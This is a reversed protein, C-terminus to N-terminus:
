GGTSPDGVWAQDGSRTLKLGFSASIKTLRDLITDAASGTVVGPIGYSNLYVPVIRAVPPGDRGLTVRLIFAEGTERSYHDFVFDGLSYAILKNHYLEMGQIVHPHHGLVLDAGADVIKHALSRQTGSAKPTYEIGWHVSVIVYDAKKKAERIAALMKTGDGVAAVGPRKTGAAFGSPVIQNFALVAVTGAPTELIAPARAATVDMGAGAHLIGAKDLRALTDSLGANGCDLAHNNSMSVVDVGASDLGALLAPRGRFTVSKGPFKSGKDTAPSELNVFTVDANQLLPKVKALVSAGGHKDIYTGVKRDGIVDGGAAVTLSPLPKETTSTTSASSTTPPDSTPTTTATAPTTSRLGTATPGPASTSSTLSSAAAVTPETPRAASAGAHSREIAYVAVLAIAVVWLAVAAVAL